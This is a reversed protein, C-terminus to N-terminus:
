AACGGAHRPLIPLADPPPPVCGRAGCAEVSGRARRRHSLLRSHPCSSFPLSACLEGCGKVTCPLPHLECDDTLHARADRLFGRWECRTPPVAVDLRALERRRKPTVVEVDEAHECSVRLKGLSTTLSINAFITALNCRCVPCTPRDECCRILCNYCCDHGNYCGHPEQLPRPTCPLFFFEDAAVLQERPLALEAADSRWSPQHRAELVDACIPCMWEENARRASQATFMCLDFGM